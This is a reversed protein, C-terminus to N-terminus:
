LNKIKEFADKDKIIYLNVGEDITKATTKFSEQGCLM